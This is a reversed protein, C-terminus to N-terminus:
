KDDDLYGYPNHNHRSWLVHRRDTEPLYSVFRGKEVEVHLRGCQDCEYIARDYNNWVPFILSFLINRLPKGTLARVQYNADVESKISRIFQWIVEAEADPSQQRAECYRALVDAMVEIPKQTDEDERLHSLYPLFDTHDPIVNGCRCGLKSVAILRRHSWLLCM